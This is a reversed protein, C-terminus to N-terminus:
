IFKLLAGMRYKMIIPRLAPDKAYQRLIDKTILQLAGDIKEPPSIIRLTNTISRTYIIVGSGDFVRLVLTLRFEATPDVLNLDKIRVMVLGGSKEPAAFVYPSEGEEAIVGVIKLGANEELNEAICKMVTALHSPPAQAVSKIYEDRADGSFVPLPVPTTGCGNLAALSVLLFLAKVSRHMVFMNRLKKM